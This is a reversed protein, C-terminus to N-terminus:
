SLCLHVPYLLSGQRVLVLLSVLALVSVLVLVLVLVEINLM